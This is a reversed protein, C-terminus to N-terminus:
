EFNDESKLFLINEIVLVDIRSNMFCKYADEPTNVVPEGALNFSTNLLIGHGTIEKFAKILNYYVQNDSPRVSQIRTSYDVHTVAPVHSYKFSIKQKLSDKNESIYLENRHAAKIKHVMLMYPSESGVEFYNELDEYLVSAGFPRFAERNKVKLNLESRMEDHTPDALISRSGLARPGFEMRGQMWGIIKGKAILEATLQILDDLNDFQKYSPNYAKLSNIIEEAKYQPGLLAGKMIDKGGEIRDEEFYIHSVALAAGLAGGADGAAPQVFINKFIGLEKIKGNAVCNLAVGGAMCLNEAGTLSKVHKAMKLMVEETIRQAVLALDCHIQDVPDEYKKKDLGLLKQWKHDNVMKLGTAYSFYKQNLWISGDDNIHIVKEKLASMFKKANESDIQGYPALGMVKYEGSNVRFGLYYTIASYFLGISHPFHLEKIFEIQQGKGEGISATAWEGVGDVTLIAAKDFGSPYFASAAHSLHHECFHLVPLKDIGAIEKLHKKIIYKIFVKEKLWVPIATIFSMIGKPAFAYYTELLREFKLFPKEYFVIADLDGLDLKAEELCYQIANEPFSSDHKNRTFREEQVAAEIQGDVVLAAASDHYYASIGLIKM